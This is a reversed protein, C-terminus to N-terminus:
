LIGEKTKIKSLAYTFLVLGLGLLDTILGEKILLVGAVLLFARQWVKLEVGIYGVIASAIAFVGLAAFLFSGVVKIFTGELLLTPSYVFMYPLIFSVLGYKFATWGVKNLNAKAIGAAVYSALAVPPTITSVCGFFFVFLHASLLPVGMKVLTPAVVSALILYAATTPLGMGLIISFVMTWILALLKAGASLTFIMSSIRIGLGTLSLVGVIIGSAACAIAISLTDKAGKELANLTKILFDKDFKRKSILHIALLTLISYYAAKFPSYGRVLVYVLVAIPIIFHWGGKIVELFKLEVEEAKYEKFRGKKAELHVIIFISLFYLIAPLVAAKMISVYPKGIIEAMIFAAAGMIPPMIQGGTAAVASIAGAKEPSYGERIMMPITLSGTIAVNGAASGSIMGVLASFVISTKAAAAIVNKTLSSAFKYLFDSAGFESLFAGYICFLIIYTSSVGIPIGFLGETSAFLFSMVRSLSYGKGKLVFPLYPAVFPYILFLASILALATGAARRTAELVLFVTLVGLWIDSEVTVGGSLAIDEWRILIYIGSLLSLVLLAVNGVFKLKNNTTEKLLSASFCLFLMMMLHFARLSMASLSIIGSVNLIHVISTLAGMWFVVNRM